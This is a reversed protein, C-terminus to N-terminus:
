DHHAPLETRGCRPHGSRSDVKVKNYYDASPGVDMLDIEGNAMATPKADDDIVRFVISDLKPKKGWWKENPSSRTPRPRPMM